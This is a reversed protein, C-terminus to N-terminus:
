YRLFYSVFFSAINIIIMLIICGLRFNKDNEKYYKLILYFLIIYYIQFSVVVGIAGALIRLRVEEPLELRWDAFRFCSFIYSNLLCPALISLNLLQKINKISNM